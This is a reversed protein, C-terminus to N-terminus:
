MLKLIKRLFSKDLIAFHVDFINHKETNFVTKILTAINKM